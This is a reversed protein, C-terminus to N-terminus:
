RAARIRSYVLVDRREGAVQHYSRLLGERAFGAQEATRLAAHNWPEILLELRHLQYLGWGFDVLARLADAALGRGRYAPAISYACGAVGHDLSRTWLVAQGLPVGGDRSAICFSYASGHLHRSQQVAIWELAESAMAFRALSGIDCVYTDTALDQVMPLDDAHFPRLRVRAHSPDHRPWVLMGRPDCFRQSAPDIRAAPQLNNMHQSGGRVTRTVLTSRSQSSGSLVTVKRSISLARVLLLRAM